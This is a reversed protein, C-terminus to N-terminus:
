NPSPSATIKMNSVLIIAGRPLRRRAKRVALLHPAVFQSDPATEKNGPRQPL